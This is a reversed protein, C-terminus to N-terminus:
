NSLITFEVRRNLAKAEPTDETSQPKADGYGVSEMRSLSVGKTKLYNKVSAARDQSLLKLNEKHTGIETHGEIRINMNPNQDMLEVLRDLEQYSEKKLTAKGPDFFINELRITAGAIIPTLLLNRTIEEYDKFNTVDLNENTGFHEPAKAHFSYRKGYPLVIQYNGDKPDSHALGVEEGSAMDYIHVDTGIPQKTKSDLVKGKVLVVPDPKAEESLTVRFIDDKGYSNNNSTLYAYKGAADIRFYADWDKSNIKPGLNLPKSWNTWSDDLRKSLFIDLSGYGPFGASSFLLTKGDAALFPADEAAFTNIDAGCNRPESWTGDAKRKSFYIDKDGYGEDREISMLLIKQDSSMWFEAYDNNNYYNEIELEEPVSWGDKTRRTLSVGGGKSTGDPNYTNICVMTNNDPMVSVIGNHSENNLPFGMQTAKSYSGDSNITSVWIADKEKDFANSPHHARAFFLTKGDPSPVPSKETYPSNIESGIAELELDAYGPAIDIEQGNQYVKIEDVEVVMRHALNFGISNGKFPISKTIFVREGNVLFSTFGKRHKIELENWQGMPKVAEVKKWPNVAVYEGDIYEGVTALGNSSVDFTYCNNVDKMGFLLGYGYNEVGKVERIKTQISYEKKPDIFVEFFVDYAAKDEKYSLRYVGDKIEADFIDSSGVWWYSRDDNFDDEYLLNLQQAVSTANLLLFLGALLTSHFKLM